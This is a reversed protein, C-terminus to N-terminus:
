KKIGHLDCFEIFENLKHEGGRDSRLIKITQGSENEVMSKFKKFVDFDESKHKLLYLWNKKSFDDIFTMFYVCGTLSPMKMPGCLDTHVIELPSKERYSVGSVFKERHHKGLIYSECSNPPQQICSLGKVMHKKQLLNLGSFHLHGYKLHWLWFEDLSGAKYANLSGSLDNKMVLPFM